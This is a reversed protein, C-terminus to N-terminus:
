GEQEQFEAPVEDFFEPPAEALIPDGEVAEPSFSEIMEVAEKREADPWDALLRLAKDQAKILTEPGEQLKGELWAKTSAIKASYDIEEPKVEALQKPAEQPTEAQTEPTVDVFQADETVGLEEPTYVNGLLLDPFYITCAESIARAFLMRDPFKKWTPNGLVGALQAKKLNWEVMGVHERSGDLYEFCDIKCVKETSEKVRYDYKASRKILGSMVGASIVPKGKVIHIGRIAASPPVGFEQGTIIKTFAQAIQQDANGSLDHFYQSIAFSKAVRILDNVQAGSPVQPAHNDTTVLEM